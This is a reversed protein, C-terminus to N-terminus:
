VYIVNPDSPAVAIAGISAVPQKDFLPTWDVGANTTKWIGGAVGGFYYTSPDGPVGGVALVRGGRFPGILRWKMGQFSNDQSDKGANTEQARLRVGSVILVSSLFAFAFHRRFLVMSLRRPIFFRLSTIAAPIFVYVIKKRLISTPNAM